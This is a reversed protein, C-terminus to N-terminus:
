RELEKLIKAYRTETKEFTEKHKWAKLADEETPCFRTSKCKCECYYLEQPKINLMLHFEEEPDIIENSRKPPSMYIMESKLIPMTKCKRCKKLKM